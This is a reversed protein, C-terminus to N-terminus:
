PHAGNGLFREVSQALANPNSTKAIFGAAGCSRALASLEVTPRDSFLVIPCRHLKHQRTVEVVQNGSLAPMSVDLLVLDPKERGLARSLGLGSDLTVVEYGFGELILRTLDRCLDSDDVVLIKQPM